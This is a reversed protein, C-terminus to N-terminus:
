PRQPSNKGHGLLSNRYRCPNPLTPNRRANTRYILIPLSHALDLLSLHPYWYTDLPLPNPLSLLGLATLRSLSPYISFKRHALNQFRVNTDVSLELALIVATKIAESQEHYCGESSIEKAYSEIIGPIDADKTDLLLVQKGNPLTQLNPDVQPNSSPLQPHCM